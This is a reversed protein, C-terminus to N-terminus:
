FEINTCSHYHYHTLHKIYIELLHKSPSKQLIRLLKNSLMVLKPLLTQYTDGYIEVSYMINPHIFAFYIMRLVDMNVQDRIKYLFISTFKLLKNYVHHYQWTLKNDIM